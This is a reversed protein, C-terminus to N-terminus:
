DYEGGGNDQRTGEEVRGPQKGKGFLGGEVKM